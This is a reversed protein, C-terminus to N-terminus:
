ASPTLRVAIHSAYQEIGLRRAIGLAGTNEMLTQYTITLDHELAWAVSAGCVAAGAGRERRDKRTLVGPGVTTDDWHTLSAAALLQDGEFWGFAGPDDLKLDGDDWDDEPCADRFAAIAQADRAEIARVPEAVVPQFREPDLWGQFVPGITGDFADGFLARLGEESLLADFTREELATRIAECREPPSSVICAGGRVFFWVGSYGALGAHPVVCAGPERLASPDVGFYRAWFAEIRKL